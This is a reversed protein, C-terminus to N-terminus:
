HTMGYLILNVGLQFAFTSYELPYYPSEAWEWADGLDTNWNIIVMPRGDDDFIGRVRPVFGDREYTVAGPFGLAIAEANAALPVQKIETIEYFIHFISHDLPIDVISRGPLVRQIEEEFNRWEQTGWFDDIVLYGGAALYDRLGAVEEESLNMGGNRGVELAYLFPYRRLNPDDLRIANSDDFMDLGALRKVVSIFQCDAKPYDMDWEGGRNRGRFGRGGGGGDSYRARTFYFEYFRDPTRGVCAREQLPLAGPRSSLAEGGPTSGRATRLLAEVSPVLGAPPAHFSRAPRLREPTTGPKAEPEAKTAAGLAPRPPDDGAVGPGPAAVAVLALAAILASTGAAGQATGRTM